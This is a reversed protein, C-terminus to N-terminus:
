DSRERGFLEGLRPLQFCEHVLQLDRASLGSWPSTRIEAGLVGRQGDEGRRQQGHARHRDAVHRVQV